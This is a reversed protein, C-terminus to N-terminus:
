FDILRGSSSNPATCLTCVRLRMGGGPSEFEGGRIIRCPDRSAECSECEVEGIRVILVAGGGIPGGPVEVM